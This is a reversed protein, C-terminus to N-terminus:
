LLLHAPILMKLFALLKQTRLESLVLALPIRSGKMFQELIKTALHQLFVQITLSFLVRKREFLRQKVCSHYLEEQHTIPPSTYTNNHSLIV